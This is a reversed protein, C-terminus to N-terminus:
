RCGIGQHTAKSLFERGLVKDFYSRNELLARRPGGQLRRRGTQAVKPVAATGNSATTANAAKAVAIATVEDNEADVEDTSDASTSESDEESDEPEGSSETDTDTSDEKDESDSSTNTDSAAPTSSGTSSGPDQEEAQEAIRTKNIAAAVAPDLYWAELTALLLSIEDNFNVVVMQMFMVMVIIDVRHTSM